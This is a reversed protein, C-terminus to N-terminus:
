KKNKHEAMNKMFQKMFEPKMKNYGDEDMWKMGSANVFFEASKDMDKGIKKEWVNMMKEKALKMWAKDALWMFMEYMQEPSMAESGSECGCSGSGCSGGGCGSAGHKDTECNGCGM